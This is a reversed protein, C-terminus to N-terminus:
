WSTVHCPARCYSFLICMGAVIGYHPLQKQKVYDITRQKQPHEIRYPREPINRSLEYRQEFVQLQQPPPINKIIDQQRRIQEPTFSHTLEDHFESMVDIIGRPRFFEGFKTGTRAGTESEDGCKTHISQHGSTASLTRQPTRQTRTNGLRRHSFSFLPPVLSSVFWLLIFPLASLFNFSCSCLYISSGCLRCSQFGVFFTARVM